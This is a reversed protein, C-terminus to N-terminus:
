GLLIKPAVPPLEMGTVNSIYQRELDEHVAYPLLVLASIPIRYSQGLLGVAPWDGFGAIVEGTKPDQVGRLVVTDKMTVVDDHMHLDNGIIEEGAITKVAFVKM